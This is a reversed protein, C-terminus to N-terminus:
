PSGRRAYAEAAEQATGEAVVTDGDTNYVWWTDIRPDLSLTVRPDATLHLTGVEWGEPPLRSRLAEIEARLEALDPAMALRLNAHLEGVISRVAAKLRDAPM